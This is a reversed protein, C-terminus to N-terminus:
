HATGTHTCNMMRVEQPFLLAESIPLAHNLATTDNEMPRSHSCLNHVVQSTDKIIKLAKWIACALTGIMPDQTGCPKPLQGEATQLGAKLLGTAM